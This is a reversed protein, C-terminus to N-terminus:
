NHRETLARRLRGAARHGSKMENPEFSSFHIIFNGSIRRFRHAYGRSRLISLHDILPAWRGALWIM